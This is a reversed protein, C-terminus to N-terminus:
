EDSDDALERWDRRREQQVRVKIFASAGKFFGFQEADHRAQAEGHQQRRQVLGDDDGSQRRNADFQAIQLRRGPDDGGIEDRRGDDRRKVALEGVDMAPPDHQHDADGYKDDAGRGARERGVHNQQDAGARQLSHAAAPQDRQRLRDDGIEDARAFAPAVLGIERRDEDGGADGARQEASQERMIQMPRQNEPDIQREPQEGEEEGVGRQLTQWAPTMLM